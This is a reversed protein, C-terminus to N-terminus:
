QYCDQLQDPDRIIIQPRSEYTGISGYVVVCTDELDEWIWDFSVAYFATKDRSFDIFFGDDSDYTSYVDGYVCTNQGLRNYAHSWYICDDTEYLPVSQTFEAAATEAYDQVEAQDHLLEAQATAAISDIREDEADEYDRWNAEGTAELDEYIQYQQTPQPETDPKKPLIVFLLRYGIFILTLIGIFELWSTGTTPLKHGCSTCKTANRPNRTGCEPCHVVHPSKTV